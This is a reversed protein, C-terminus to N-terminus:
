ARLVPSVSLFITKECLLHQIWGTKFQIRCCLLIRCCALSQQFFGEQLLPVSLSGSSVGPFVCPYLIKSKRTIFAHLCKIRRLLCWVESLFRYFGVAFCGSLFFGFWFWCDGGWSELYELSWKHKAKDIFFVEFRTWLRVLFNISGQTQKGHCLFFVM